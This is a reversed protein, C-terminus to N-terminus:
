LSSDCLHVYTNM